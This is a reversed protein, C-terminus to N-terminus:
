NGSRRLSNVLGDRKKAFFDSDKCELIFVSCCVKIFVIRLKQM